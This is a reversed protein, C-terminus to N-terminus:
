KPTIAYRFSDSRYIIKTYELVKNQPEAICNSEVILLPVLATCELMSREESTPFSISLHSASSTFEMYGMQRYYAFMSRLQAGDQEINPFTSKAVYSSHLAVPKEEILRLRSIKFVEDSETVQLASYIRPHYAIKECSVNKTKLPYGSSLMKETFSKSGTLHLEIQQQSDKLFRGKGQQSYIYGMEELKQLANRVKIRPVRYDNALDNESPLRENPKFKDQMIAKMLDDVIMQEVDQTM